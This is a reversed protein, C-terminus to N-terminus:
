VNKESLPSEKLNAKMRGRIENNVMSIKDSFSIVDQELENPDEESLLHSLRDTM